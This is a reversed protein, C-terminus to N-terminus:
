SVAYVTHRRKYVTSQLISSLVSNYDSVSKTTTDLEVKLMANAKKEGKFKQECKMRIDYIELDSDVEQKKIYEEFERVKQQSEDQFQLTSLFPCSIIRNAYKM